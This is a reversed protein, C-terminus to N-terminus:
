WVDLAIIPHLIRDKEALSSGTPALCHSFVSFYRGSRGKQVQLLSPRIRGFYRLANNSATLDANHSASLDSTTGRIKRGRDM